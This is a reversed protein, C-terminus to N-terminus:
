SSGMLWESSVNQQCYKEKYKLQLLAFKQTHIITVTSGTDILAQLPVNEIKIEIYLGDNPPLSFEPDTKVFPDM